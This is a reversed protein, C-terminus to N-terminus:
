AKAKEPPYVSLFWQRAFYVLLGFGTWVGFGIWTINSLSSMLYLCLIIGLM